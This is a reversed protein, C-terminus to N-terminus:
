FDPPPHHNKQTNETKAIEKLWLLGNHLLVWLGVTTKAGQLGRRSFRSLGRHTKMEGFCREISASRRRYLEARVILRKVPAFHLPKDGLFRVFERFVKFVGDLVVINV